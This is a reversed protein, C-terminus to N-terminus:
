SGRIGHLSLQIAHHYLPSVLNNRYRIGAFQAPVAKRKDTSKLHNIRNNGIRLNDGFKLLLKIFFIDIHHLHLRIDAWSTGTSPTPATFKKWYIGPYIWDGSPHSLTPRSWKSIRRSFNGTLPGDSKWSGPSRRQLSDPIMLS